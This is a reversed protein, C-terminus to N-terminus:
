VIAFKILINVYILYVYERLWWLIFPCASCLGMYKMCSLQSFQSLSLCVSSLIYAVIYEIMQACM